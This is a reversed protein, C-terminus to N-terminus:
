SIVGPTIFNDLALKITANSPPNRTIIPTATVTIEDTSGSFYLKIGPILFDASQTETMVMSGASSSASVSVVLNESSNDFGVGTVSVFGGGSVGYTGILNVTTSGTAAGTIKTLQTEVAKTTGFDIIAGVAKEIMDAGKAHFTMTEGDEFAQSTSFTITKSVSDISTIVTTASPVTTSKHYILEMGTAIRTLDAVTVKNSSVGDGEPNSSIAETKPFYWDTEIPQRTLRFGFGFEDSTSNALVWNVSVTKEGVVIPSQTNVVNGGSALSDSTYTGTNASVNALTLTSDAVQTITTTYLFKDGLILGSSLETKFHPDTFLFITYTDGSANAPFSINGIYFSGSMTVNSRNQSTFASTFTKTKFDYFKVPSSSDSIQLGFVAGKEGNIRFGRSTAAAVLDSTDIDIATVYKTTVVEKGYLRKHEADSMLTGDPMYHFGAPAVEGQPNIRTYAM